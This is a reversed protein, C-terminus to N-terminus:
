GAYRGAGASSRAPDDGHGNEGHNRPLQIHAKRHSVFENSRGGPRLSRDYSPLGPHGPLEDDDAPVHVVLPVISNQSAVVPLPEPV